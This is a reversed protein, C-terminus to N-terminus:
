RRGGTGVNEKSATRSATDGTAQAKKNGGVGDKHWQEFDGKKKKDTM